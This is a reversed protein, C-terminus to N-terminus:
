AHRLQTKQTLTEWVVAILTNVLSATMELTPHLFTWKRIWEHPQQCSKTRKQNSLSLAETGWKSSAERTAKGWLGRELAAWSMTAQQRGAQYFPDIDFLSIWPCHHLSSRRPRILPVSWLWDTCSLKRLILHLLSYLLFLLSLNAKTM